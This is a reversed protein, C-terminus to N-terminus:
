ELRRDEVTQLFLPLPPPNPIPCRSTVLNRAGFTLVDFFNALMENLALASFNEAARVVAAV